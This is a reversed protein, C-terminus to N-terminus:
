YFDKIVIILALGDLVAINNHIKGITQSLYIDMILIRKLSIMNIEDIILAM